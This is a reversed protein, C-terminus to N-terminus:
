WFKYDVRDIKTIGDRGAKQLYDFFGNKAVKAGEIAWFNKSNQLIYNCNGSVWNSSFNCKHFKFDASETCPWNLPLCIMILHHNLLANM